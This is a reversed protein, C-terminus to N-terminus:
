SRPSGAQASPRANRPPAHLDRALFPEALALSPAAADKASLIPKGSLPWRIGIRPDNWAVCREDRPSWFETMKYAVEAEESLVLFGHAFGPPIWAERLNEESLTFSTWCGYQPSDTRMDLAVDFIAGRLVSVLKAQPRGLQYHLGRIVNKRSRSRNDQVFEVGAGLADAFVRKNYSEFNYGRDDRFVLPEFLLPGQMGTRHFTM